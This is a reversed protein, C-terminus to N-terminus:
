PKPLQEPFLNLKHFLWFLPLEIRIPNIAGTKLIGPPKTNPDPFPESGLSSTGFLAYDDYSQRLTELFHGDECDNILSGIVNTSYEAEEPIIDFANKRAYNPNDFIKPEHQLAPHALFRDFKNVCVAIPRHDKNRDDPRSFSNIAQFINDPLTRGSQVSQKSTTSTLGLSVPDLLWIFGSCHRMYELYGEYKDQNAFDEGSVDYFVLHIGADEHGTFRIHFIMPSPLKDLVHTVNLVKQEHYLTEFNFNQTQWTHKDFPEVTIGIVSAYKKLTEILVTIFISKGANTLGILGITHSRGRLYHDSLFSGCVCNLGNHRLKKACYGCTVSFGLKTHLRAWFTQENAAGCEKCVRPLTTLESEEFCYPCRILPMKTKM